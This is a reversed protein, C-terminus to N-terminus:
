FIVIIVGIPFYPADPFLRYFHFMFFSYFILLLFGKEYSHFILLLVYLSCIGVLAIMGITVNTKSIMVSLFCSLAACLFIVLLAGSDIKNRQTLESPTMM